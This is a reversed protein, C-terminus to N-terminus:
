ALAWELDGILDDTDEIGVSLRVLGPTVGLREKLSPSFSAHTTTSPHLAMSRTDGINTMHSFVRLRNLFRAAGEQGGRITVAFVSGTRGGYLQQALAERDSDPLGAFDVSEVKPHGALWAAIAASSTLHQEMRLSLTETGQHLLFANFPSLAPGIDNVVAERALRAYATPGYRDLFSLGGGAPPETLLPYSRDSSAWDFTGGDVITGSLAAGHGSLFKTSSHVM